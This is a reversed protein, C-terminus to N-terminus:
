GLKKDDLEELSKVFFRDELYKDEYNRVDMHVWTSAAFSDGEHKHFRANIVGPELSKKNRTKWRKQFNSKKVLLDRAENCIKWHEGKSGGFGIDLAKGMHNTSGRKTPKTNNIHCRYGSNIRPSKFRPNDAVFFLFARYSHLIAKHIGPYEYQHIREVHSIIGKADRDWLLKDGSRYIKKFRQQGFGKCTCVKIKSKKFQCLLKGGFDIPFEKAFRNLAKFTDTKKKGTAEAIGTPKEMKMYEKQFLEVQKKTNKGFKGDWDTGAFGALRLQLEEVDRGEMLDSKIYELTRHGFKLPKKM